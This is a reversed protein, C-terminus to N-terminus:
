SLTLILLATPCKVRPLTHVGRRLAAARLGERLCECREYNVPWALNGTSPRGDAVADSEAAAAAADAAAIAEPAVPAARRGGLRRDADKGKEARVRYHGVLAELARQQPRTDGPWGALALVLRFDRELVFGLRPPDLALLLAAM